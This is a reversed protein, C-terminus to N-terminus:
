CISASPLNMGEDKAWAREEMEEGGSAARGDGEGYHLQEMLDTVGNRIVLPVPEALMDQADAKAREYAKYASNSKSAMSLYIVAHSLHM